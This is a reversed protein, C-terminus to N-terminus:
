LCSLDDGFDIREFRNLRINKRAEKPTFVQGNMAIYIGHQLLQVAAIAFGINFEADSARLRAPQMSGVLVVTKGTVTDALIRATDIM